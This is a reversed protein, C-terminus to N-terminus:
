APSDAFAAIARTADGLAFVNSLGKLKGPCLQVPEHGKGPKRLDAVVRRKPSSGATEHIHPRKGQHELLM